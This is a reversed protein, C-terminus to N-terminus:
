DIWFTKLSSSTAAADSSSSERFGTRNAESFEFRPHCVVNQRAMQPSSSTERGQPLLKWPPRDRRPSSESAVIGWRALTGAELSEAGRSSGLVIAASCSGPMVVAALM